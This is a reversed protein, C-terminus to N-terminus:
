DPSLANIYRGEAAQENLRRVHRTASALFIVILLIVLNLRMWPIPHAPPKNSITLFLAIVISLM